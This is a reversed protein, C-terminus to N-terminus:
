GHRVEPFQQVRLDEPWEAPDAGARDKLRRAILPAAEDCVKLGAGAIGNEPDSACAGLQKVFCAVEARSCQRVLSRAWALEFPRASTGSEGGVIVWHLQPGDEGDTPGGNEYREGSRYREAQQEGWTSILTGDRRCEPCHDTGQPTHESRCRSCHDVRAIWRGLDVAELLPEMSVFRVAAPAKLLLPIRENAAAQHEVTVGLWCRSAVDEPIIGLRDARKTLLLWDLDDATEGILRWLDARMEDLGPAEELVDMMSGCFVKAKRGTARAAKAWRFPGSWYAASTRRRTGRFDRGWRHEQAEAYCHACGASVPSCGIWPNFTHDTWAIKSDKGM